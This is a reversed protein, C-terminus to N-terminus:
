CFVPRYSAAGVGPSRSVFQFNNEGKKTWGVRYLAVDPAAHDWTARFSTQTVDSFQLNKPAPVVDSYSVLFLFFTDTTPPLLNLMMHLGTFQEADVTWLDLILSKDWVPDTCSGDVSLHVNLCFM